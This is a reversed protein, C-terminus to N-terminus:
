PKKQKLFKLNLKNSFKKLKKVKLNFKLVKLMLNNRKPLQLKKYNILKKHLLKLKRSFPKSKFKKQMLKNKNSKWNIVSFLLLKNPKNSNKSVM